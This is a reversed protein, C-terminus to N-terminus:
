RRAAFVLGTLVASAPALTASLRPIGRLSIITRSLGFIGFLFGFRHFLGDAIRREQQHSGCRM